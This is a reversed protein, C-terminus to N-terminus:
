MIFGGYVLQHLPNPSSRTQPVHPPPPPCHVWLPCPHEIEEWVGRGTRRKWRTTGSSHKKIIFQGDLLHVPKGSDQSGDQCVILPAPLLFELNITALLPPVQPKGDSHPQNPPVSSYCIFFLKGEATWTRPQSGGKIFSLSVPSLTPYSEIVLCCYSFLLYFNLLM